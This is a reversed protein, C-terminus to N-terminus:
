KLLELFEKGEIVRGVGKRPNKFRKEDENTRVEKLNLKSKAMNWDITNRFFVLVYNYEEMYEPTIPPLEGLTRKALYKDIDEDEWNMLRKLEDKANNDILYAFERGDLTPNHTGKLKNMVQRLIKRDVESVELVLVPVKEMSLEKAAKLRHEGDAIILDKNTIIPILFGYKEMNYKLANFEGPTMSNPNKNDILLSNVDLMQIEPIKIAM